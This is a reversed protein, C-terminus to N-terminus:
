GKAAAKRKTIHDRLVTVQRAEEVKKDRTLDFVYHNLEQIYLDYLPSADKERKAELKALTDRYTAHLSKLGALTGPTDAPVDGGKELATKEEDLANVEALSGKAEAAARARSIGNALYSRRLSALADDFPKQADTAYRSQFGAELQAIRPHAASLSAKLDAVIADESTPVLKVEWIDWIGQEPLTLKASFWMTRGNPSLWFANADKAFPCIITKTEFRNEAGRTVVLLQKENTPPIPDRSFLLTRGDPSVFVGVEGNETNVPEGGSEPRGWPETLSSRRSLVVDLKGKSNWGFSSVLMILGDPTHNPFDGSHSDLSEVKVPPSWSSKRDKRESQWIQMASKYTSFYLTLGDASLCPREERAPTNLETLLRAQGFPENVSGRQAEYLESNL